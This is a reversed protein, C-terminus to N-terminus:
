LAVQQNSGSAFHRCRLRALIRFVCFVSYIIHLSSQSEKTKNQKERFDGFPPSGIMLISGLLRNYEQNKTMQNTLYYKNPNFPSLHDILSM